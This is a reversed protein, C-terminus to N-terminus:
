SAQAPHADPRVIAKRRVMRVAGAEPEIRGGHAEAWAQTFEAGFLLILSSYYIWLLTVALSGAAGYAHGVDSRGLYYGILFKGLVFLLTTIGAGVWADRWRVRADPLVKFIAAFLVTFVSLSLALNLLTLAPASLGALRGALVDGFASLAASLALSVLLLFAVALIMGFSLVRKMVFRRLGGHEPDPQVEWAKNLAMQLQSFAGTAGFMLAVFGLVTTLLSGGGPPSAHELITRVQAGGSEGILRTLQTQIYGAVEQPDLVSGLLLLLLVLLPPLSFITYYSVAAAMTMCEDDMFEMASRRLLRLPRPLHTM